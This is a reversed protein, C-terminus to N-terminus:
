ASVKEALKAAVDRGLARCSELAASDPVYQVKLPEAVLEVKMSELASAIEATAEGSWGYSGFAAGILNRPKLGKLYSLVEAVTPFLGNNLTPSGVILAGADLVETVVDSRHSPGLRCVSVEVDADALGEAIARAMLHTSDWMSDYVIVAKKAPAQAAWKGYLALIDAIRSRWIPGHDPALVDIDLGLEAIKDLLKPVLPSYPLLINAYYKEAEHLLIDWPLEDDFRRSSALHMGFGDQSFLLKEAALYTVMSDPWHLMRTELFSFDTSGLKLSSGNEVPEVKLGAHFHAALTKQGVASAFVKDPRVAAITEVLAGSHDMESHNSIIYDVRTVDGLVSAVRALMEDKFPRKVTDILVNKDGTVLYANYTTGATTNYGHFNRINWDVAGVWHVNETVKTANFVSSM